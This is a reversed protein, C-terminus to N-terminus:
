LKLGVLCPQKRVYGYVYTDMCVESLRHSKTRQVRWVCVLHWGHLIMWCLRKEHDYKQWQLIKGFPRPSQSSSARASSPMPARRSPFQARWWKDFRMRLLSWLRMTGNNWRFSRTFAHMCVFSGACTYCHSHCFWLFHYYYYYHIFYFRSSWM